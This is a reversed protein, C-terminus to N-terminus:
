EGKLRTIRNKADAAFEGSPDLDLYQEYKTVAEPKAGKKELAMGSYYYAPGYNPDRSLVKGFETLAIDYNGVHIYAIAMDGRVKTDESDIELARHFYVIALSYRKELFYLNGLGKLAAPDKPNERLVRKYSEERIRFEEKQLDTLGPQNRLFLQWYVLSAAGALSLLIIVGVLVKLLREERLRALLSQKFPKEEIRQVHVEFTQARLLMNLDSTILTVSAKPDGKTLNYALALIVDDANKLNLGYPVEALNDAPMVKVVGGNDLKVGSILKGKSSLSFLVRSVERGRYILSRDARSLKLRDLEALVIQPIIIEAGPYGFLIEPDSLLASTDIVFKEDM